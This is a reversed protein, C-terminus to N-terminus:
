VFDTSTLHFMDHVKGDLSTSSSTGERKKLWGM